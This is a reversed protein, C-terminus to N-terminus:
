RINLHQAFDINRQLDNTQVLRGAGITLSGIYWRQEFYHVPTANGACGPVPNPNAFFAYGSVNDTFQYGGSMNGAPAGRIWNTGPYQEYLTSGFDENMQVDGNPLYATFQDRINYRIHTMYGYTPDCTTGVSWLFLDNPARVTLQTVSTGSSPYSASIRVDGQSTSGNHSTVTIQGGTTSSLSVKDGGSVLSWMTADGASSSLVISTPYNSPSAGDFWWLTAPGSISPSPYFPDQPSAVTWASGSGYNGCSEIGSYSWSANIEYSFTNPYSTDAWPDSDAGSLYSSGYVWLEQYYGSSGSVYGEITNCTPGAEVYYDINISAGYTFPNTAYIDVSEAAVRTPYLPVVAILLVCLRRM